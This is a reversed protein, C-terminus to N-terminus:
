PKVAVIRRSTGGVDGRASVFYIGPPVRSGGDDRLDWDFRHDGAPLVGAAIVRRLRGQVDHVTVRVRDGRPLALRLTAVNRAPNPAISLRGLEAHPSSPPAAALGFGSTLITVTSDGTIVVVDARGDGTVDGMAVRGVGPGAGYRFRPSFGLDSPQLLAVTGSGYDTVAVDPRGDGTVDGVAFGGPGALAVPTASLAGTGNGRALALGDVVACDIPGCALPIGVAVDASGDHDFDAVALQSCTGSFSPGNMSDFGGDPRAIWQFLYGHFSGVVDPRGDGNLDGITFADLFGSEITVPPGFTGDGLGPRYCVGVGTTPDNMVADLRGDHDMDGLQLTASSHPGGVSEPIPAAFHGGGQQLMVRITTDALEVLDLRGDGNVDGAVFSRVSCDGQQCSSPTIVTQRPEFTGGPGGRYVDVAADGAVAIDAFGDGDLDAVAAWRPNPSVPLMRRPPAAGGRGAMLLDLTASYPADVDLDVVDDEGDGDLDMALLRTPLPGAGWAAAPAFVGSGVGLSVDVENPRAVLLDARGDGNVDGVALARGGGVLGADVAAGFTGDGGGHRTITRGTSAVLVALDLRGDGDLDALTWDSAIDPAALMAPSFAGAGNGLLVDIGHAGSAVLDNLGDGNVDAAVVRDVGGSIPYTTGAQLGAAGGNMHVTVGTAGAVAVDLRTDGNLRALVVGRPSSGTAVMVPAAFDGAGDGAFVQLDNGYTDTVVLDPATGLTIRGSAVDGQPIQVPASGFCSLTGDGNPLYLSALGSGRDYAIVGTATATLPGRVLGFDGYGYTAVGYGIFPAALARVDDGCDRDQALSVHPMGAGSAAMVAIAIGTHMFDRRTARM